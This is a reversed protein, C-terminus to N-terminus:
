SEEPWGKFLDNAVIKVVSVFWFEANTSIQMKTSIHVNKHPYLVSVQM